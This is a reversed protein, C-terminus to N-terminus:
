FGNKRNPSVAFRTKYSFTTTIKISSCFYHSLIIYPSFKPKPWKLFIVTKILYCSGIM